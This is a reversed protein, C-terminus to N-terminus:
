SEVGWISATAGSTVSVCLVVGFDKDSTLNSARRCICFMSGNQLLIKFHSDFPFTGFCSAPRKM